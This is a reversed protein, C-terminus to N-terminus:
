IATPAISEEQNGPMRSSWIQPAETEMHQSGGANLETFILKGEVYGYWSVHTRWLFLVKPKLVSGFQHFNFTFKSELLSNLM